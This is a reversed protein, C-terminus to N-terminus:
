EELMKIDIPIFVSFQWCIEGSPPDFGYNDIGYVGTPEYEVELLVEGYSEGMDFPSLYTYRYNLTPVGDHIRYGWLIGSKKIERWRNESTRHYFKMSRLLFSGSRKLIKM